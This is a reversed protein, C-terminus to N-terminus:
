YFEFENFLPQNVNEYYGRQIDLDKAEKLSIVKVKSKCLFFHDVYRRINALHKLYIEEYDSEKMPKRGLYGTVFPIIDVNEDEDNYYLFLLVSAFITIQMSDIQNSISMIDVYRKVVNDTLEYKTLTKSLKDLNKEDTPINSTKDSVKLKLRRKM